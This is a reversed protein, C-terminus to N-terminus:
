RTLVVWAIPEKFNDVFVGYVRQLEFLKRMKQETLEDSFKWTSILLSVWENGLTEM